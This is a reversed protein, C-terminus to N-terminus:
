PGPPLPPWSPKDDGIRKLLVRKLRGEPMHKWLWRAFHRGPSWMLYVFVPGFVAFVVITIWTAKM